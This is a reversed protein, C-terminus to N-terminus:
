DVVETQHRIYQVDATNLRWNSRPEVGTLSAIEHSVERDLLQVPDDLIRHKADITLYPWWTHIPPPILSPM